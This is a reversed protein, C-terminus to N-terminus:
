FSFIYRPTQELSRCDRKRKRSRPSSATGHQQPDCFGMVAPGITDIRRESDRGAQPYLSSGGYQRHLDVSNQEAVAPPLPHTIVPSSPTGERQHAEVCETQVVARQGDPERPPSGVQYRLQGHIPDTTTATAVSYFNVHFYTIIIIM